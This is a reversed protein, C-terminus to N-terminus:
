QGTSGFGGSGRTTNSLVDFEAETISAVAVTPVRKFVLQAIKMGKSIVRDKPESHSPSPPTMIVKIEGRYSADITGPSNQITWGKLSMGSRPRVQAEWGPPLVMKLGTSVVKPQEPNMWKVDETSFIDWGADDENAKDPLKAESHCLLFKVQVDTKQQLNPVPSFWNKDDTKYDAKYDM